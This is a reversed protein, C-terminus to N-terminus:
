QTHRGSLPSHPTINSYKNLHRSNEFHHNMDVILAIAEGTTKDKSSSERM